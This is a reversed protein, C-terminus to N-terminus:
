NQDAGRAASDAPHSRPAADRSGRRERADGRGRDRSSGRHGSSTSAPNNRSKSSGRDRAPQHPSGAATQRQKGNRRNTARRDDDEDRGGRRGAAAMLAQVRASSVKQLIGYSTDPDAIFYQSRPDQASMFVSRLSGDQQLADVRRALLPVLHNLILEMGFQAFQLQGDATVAVFADLLSAVLTLATFIQQVELRDRPNKDMAQRLQGPLDKYALPTGAPHNDWFNLSRRPIHAILDSAPISRPLRGVRRPAPAGAVSDEDDDTDDADDPPAPDGGNLSFNGVAQMLQRMQKEMNSMWTQMHPDAPAAEGDDPHRQRRARSSARPQRPLSIRVGRAGGRAGRSRTVPGAAAAPAEEPEDESDEDGENDEPESAPPSRTGHGAMLVTFFLPWFIRIKLM